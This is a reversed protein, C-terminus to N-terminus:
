NVLLDRIWDSRAWDLVSKGREDKLVTSVGFALFTEIIQRQAARAAETGSGGRGTNQVALHFATSGPKNKLAPEAGAQLLFEVAAACRTRVARHLATAGNKDQVNIDAGADLLCRLTSVQRKADWAPSDFWGDAAYHLPTSRRHNSAANPDAGAALLLRVIELRYGAAALHLATDGVYIWHFIQSQYLRAQDILGTALRGDGRLLEKVRPRDDDVIAALFRDM